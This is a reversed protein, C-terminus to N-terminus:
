GFISIRQLLEIDKLEIDKGNIVIIDENKFETLVRVTNEESISSLEGLDKRSIKIIYNKSDNLQSLYLLSEAVKGRIQKQNLSVFKDMIISVSDVFAKNLKNLFIPNNIYMKKVLEIDINCTTCDNIAAVNYIYDESGMVATLGIYNSHVLINLIINKNNIGDVFMKANGDVIVVANKVKDKKSCIIEHKKYIFYQPKLEDEIDMERATLYIDCKLACEKCNVNKVLRM